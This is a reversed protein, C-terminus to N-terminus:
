RPGKRVVLAGITPPTSSVCSQNHTLLNDGPLANWKMMYALLVEVHVQKM